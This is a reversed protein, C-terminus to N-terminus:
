RTKAFCGQRDWVPLSDYIEERMRDLYRALPTEYESQCRRVIKLGGQRIFEDVMRQQGEHYNADAEMSALHLEIDPDWRGPEDVRYRMSYMWAPFKPFQASTTSRGRPWGPIIDRAKM